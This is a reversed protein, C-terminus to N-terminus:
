LAICFQVAINKPKTETTGTNNNVTIGTTASNTNQTTNSFVWEAPIHAGGSFGISTDAPVSHVHGPDTIPHNHPGTTDAVKAAFSGSATGDGNTGYARPFYGQLDPLNFTTLGDGAGWTTGLNAFLTAYTTRSVAAGDANHWGSPCSNMAFMRVEGPTLVAASAEGSTLGSINFGSAGVYGKSSGGAVFNMNGSGDRYLGLTTDGSFSLSPAGILGNGLGTLSTINTNAGANAGNANTNAVVQNFNAMVQTADATTNNQLNYPLTNIITTAYAAGASLLFTMALLTSRKM